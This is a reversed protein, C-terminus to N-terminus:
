CPKKNSLELDTDGEIKTESSQRLLSPAVQGNVSLLLADDPANVISDVAAEQDPTLPNGGGGGTPDYPRFGM